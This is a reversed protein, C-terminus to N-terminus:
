KKTLVRMQRIFIVPKIIKRTTEERIKWQFGGWVAKTEGEILVKVKFKDSKESTKLSFIAFPLNSKLQELKIKMEKQGNHDRQVSAILGDLAVEEVAVRAWLCHYSHFNIYILGIIVYLIIPMLLACEVTISATKIKRKM